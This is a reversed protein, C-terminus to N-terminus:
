MLTLRLVVETIAPAEAPAPFLSLLIQEKSFNETASAKDAKPGYLQKELQAIRWQMQAILAHAEALTQPLTAKSTATM